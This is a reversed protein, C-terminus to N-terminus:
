SDCVVLDAYINDRGIFLHLYNALFHNVNVFQFADEGTM